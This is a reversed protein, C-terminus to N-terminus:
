CPSSLLPHQVSRTICIEHHEQPPHTPREKIVRRREATRKPHNKLAILACFFNVHFSFYRLYRHHIHYRSRLLQLTVICLAYESKFDRPPPPTPLMSSQVIPKGHLLTYYPNWLGTYFSYFLPFAFLGSLLPVLSTNLRRAIVDCPTFAWSTALLVEHMAYNIGRCGDLSSFVGRLVPYFSGNQLCILHRPILSGHKM